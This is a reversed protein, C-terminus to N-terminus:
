KSSSNKKRYTFANRRKVKEKMRREWEELERLAADAQPQYMKRYFKRGTEPDIETYPALKAELM